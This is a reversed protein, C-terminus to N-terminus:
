DDVVFKFTFEKAIDINMILKQFDEESTIETIKFETTQIKEVNENELKPLLSKFELDEFIKKLEKINPKSSTLDEISFDLPVETVIEALKRSLIALNEGESLKDKLKGKI